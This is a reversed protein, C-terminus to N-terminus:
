STIKRFSWARCASEASTAFTRFSEGRLKEAISVRAYDAPHVLQEHENLTSHCRWGLEKVGLTFYYLGSTHKVFTNVVRQQYDLLNEYEDLLFVFYKSRLGPTSLLAEALLDVPAQQLSLPVSTTDAINNVSAEFRLRADILAARLAAHSECQELHLSNAIRQCTRPDIAIPVATIQEFKEAFDLLLDCLLFNFYHAFYSTWQRETLEQGCFATVHNTNIRHYVGFYPLSQLSQQPSQDSLGVQGEYSLGRLVTTKGTGRGGILVCSRPTALEPFYNPETFLEFIQDRLWEARYTGFLNSLQQQVAQRSSTSM